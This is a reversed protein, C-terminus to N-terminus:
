PIANKSCKSPIVFTLNTLKKRPIINEKGQEFYDEYDILELKQLVLLVRKIDDYRKSHNNIKIGIHEAIDKFSFIFNQGKWKWMTGLYIYTKITYESVGVLLTRLAELPIMLYFDEKNDLTYWDENDIIFGEEILYKLHNYYTTRSSYNLNKIIEAVTPIDNKYVRTEYINNEKDLPFPTSISQFYAYLEGDVKKDNLFTKVIEKNLKKLEEQKRVDAPFRKEKM